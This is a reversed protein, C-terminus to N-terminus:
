WGWYLLVAGQACAQLYHQKRLVVELALTQGRRLITAFLVGNWALLVAGAIWLSSQLRPNQQAVPLLGCAVLLLAFTLPLTLPRAGALRSVPLPRAARQERAARQKRRSM